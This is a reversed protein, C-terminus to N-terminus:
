LILRGESQTFYLITCFHELKSSISVQRLWSLGQRSKVLKEQPTGVSGIRINGTEGWKLSYHFDIVNLTKTSLPISTLNVLFIEM